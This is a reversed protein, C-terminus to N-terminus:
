EGRHYSARAQQLGITDYFTGPTAHTASGPSEAHTHDYETHSAMSFQPCEHRGEWALRAADTPLLHGDTLMITVHEEWAEYLDTSVALRAGTEEQQPRGHTSQSPEPSGRRTSMKTGGIRRHSSCSL